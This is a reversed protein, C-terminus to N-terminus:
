PGLPQENRSRAPAAGNPSAPKTNVLTLRVNPRATPSHAEIRASRRACLSAIHSPDLLHAYSRSITQRSLGTAVAVSSYTIKQKKNTLAILAACIRKETKNKREGHTWHAGLRQRETLPMNSLGLGLAGRRKNSRTYKTWTWRAVSKATAKIESLPLPNRPNNHNNLVSAHSWVREHWRDFNGSQKAAAVHEYAWARLNDFLTCNRGLPNERPIQCKRAAKEDPKIYEALKALDYVHHHVEVTRWSAHFPNKAVPSSYDPDAGLRAGFGRRVAEAFAVPKRRGNQSLCVPAIAYFLHSRGTSPTIVMLNPAPLLEDQWIFPNSHDLDFILWYLQSPQNIQIYRRKLAAPLVRILSATKDDSCYPRHPCFAKIRELATLPNQAYDIALAVAM